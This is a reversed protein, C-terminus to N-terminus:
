RPKLSLKLSLGSAIGSQAKLKICLTWNLYITSQVAIIIMGYSGRLHLATAAYM